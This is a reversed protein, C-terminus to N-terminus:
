FKECTHKDTCESLQLLFNDPPMSGKLHTVFYDWMRRVYYTDLFSFSHDRNPLYLLDFSKNAEILANALNLTVAPYANEDMDGYVLMLKGTLNQALKANDIADYPTPVESDVTRVRGGDTYKPIGLYTELGAYMGQFNHSGASSVVAKYFDPRKLIARATLYGGFSHGYAGVRELDIFDYKEALQKIASVHDEIGPDAFNGYGVDQFSKSRFPTGRGDIVVVSFGLRVLSSVSANSDVVYASRFRKPVNIVQPGGYFADIVPYKKGKKYDYPKYLVGYIDWKGDASKVKFREPPQWDREYLNSANAKELELVIEGSDTSRLVTRPPLDVRSMSDIFYDFKPSMSQPPGSLVPEDSQISIPVSVSDQFVINHHADEPTLLTIDGGDLSAKYLHPYYPDRGTERGAGTFYIERQQENVAIIDLVNWDGSTIHSKIEGTKRDMLYLHGWDTKDSFWIIEQDDNILRVNPRHYINLNAHIHTESSEEHLTKVSGTVINVEVLRIAKAGQNIMIAVFGKSSELWAVVGNRVLFFDEPLDIKIHSGLHMDFVHSELVPRHRDGLMPIRLQYVVPRHSGDQPVWEVFPYDDLAREDTRTSVLFRSDPSWFTAHPLQQSQDRLAAIASLSNDPKKGFSYYRYGEKTLRKEKGNALDRVWLDHNKVFAAQKGNPSSIAYATFEALPFIECQYIKLNCILKRGPVSGHLEVGPNLGTLEFPLHYPDVEFSVLRTLSEALKIHDFANRKTKAQTDVLVYEYGKELDRRYWFRNEGNVWHPIIRENKVTGRLNLDYLRAAAKYNSLEETFTERAESNSHGKMASDSVAYRSGFLLLILFCSCVKMDRM